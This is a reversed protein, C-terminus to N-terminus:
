DASLALSLRAIEARHHRFIESDTWTHSLVRDGERLFDRTEVFAEDSLEMVDRLAIRLKAEAQRVLQTSTGNQRHRQILKELLSIAAVDELGDRVAEWRVSPVSLEGPYVLAYEDNITKGKLWPDAETTCHTWFGIGSLGFFKARWANARNYLLPSLSKVQGVCEYSWVTGAQMIRKIRPDGSLLGSVLRMNPCWIDVFPRIREFDNWSLGPVPDTYTQLKPDAERFLKGADLLVPVNTGYDLGPEDLLYFAYDTYSWGHEALHARLAHIYDLELSHTEATTKQTAFAIPPHNLHFLIKGRHDLRTLEADLAQWDISLAGTSDIRAPPITSRPFINVGHRGMDDLVEKSRSPFWRNPVYDWTCLKLSFEKALRLDLVQLNLAFEIRTEQGAVPAVFIKGNYNGPSAGHTDVSVWIKVARYPLLTILGAGDLAPLADPVQEGNVSGTSIVERLVITGGFATGDKRVPQSVIVRAEIRESSKSAIVFAGEDVEDLYLNDVSVQLGNGSIELLLPYLRTQDFPGYPSTPWASLLPTVANKQPANNPGSQSAKPSFTKDALVNGSQDRAGVHFAVHSDPGPNPLPIEFASRATLGGVTRKQRKEDTWSVHVNLLAGNTNEVLITRCQADSDKLSLRVNQPEGTQGYQSKPPGPRLRYALLTTTTVLLDPLGNPGTPIPTLASPLIGELRIDDSLEGNEDFEYVHQHFTPVFIGFRGGVNQVIPVGRVKARFLHTWVLRGHIDVAHLNGWLGTFLILPTSNTRPLFTIARSFSDETSCEWLINGKSDLACLNSAATGCIIMQKQNFSLVEPRTVIERGGLDRKWQVIGNPDCCFLTSAAAILLAEKNIGQSMVQAPAKCPGHGLRDTWVVAGNPNLCTATGSDDTFVLTLGASIDLIAPLARGWVTQGSLQHHWLVEFKHDLCLVLGEVSAVVFRDGSPLHILTPATTWRGPPLQAVLGDEGPGVPTGDAQWLFLQGGRNLILIQQNAPDISQLVLPSAEVPWQGAMRTWQIDMAWGSVPIIAFFLLRPMLLKQIFGGEERHM